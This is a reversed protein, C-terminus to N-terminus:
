EGLMVACGKYMVGKYWVTMRYEYLHDSIGDHCFSSSISINLPAGAETVISYFTSDRNVIPKEIPVIIPKGTATLKFLILKENDIEVSWFPDSGSGVIDIGESKRKEWSLNGTPSKKKFLVNHKLSSDPIRLGNNEINLLSDKVLIYQATVRNNVSLLFRGNLKKWTGETQKSNTGKGLSLEEMTFQDGSFLITRQIGECTKCPLMGQYFGSPSSEYAGANIISDKVIFMTDTVPAAMAASGPAARTFYLWGFFGIIFLILIFIFNKM